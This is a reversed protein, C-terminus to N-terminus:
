NVQIRGDLQSFKRVPEIGFIDLSCSIRGFDEGGVGRKKKTICCRRAAKDRWSIIHLRARESVHNAHVAVCTGGM